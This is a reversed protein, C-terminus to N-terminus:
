SRDWVRWTDMDLEKEATWELFTFPNDFNDFDGTLCGSTFQHCNDLAVNYDRSHGVMDEARKAAKIKGVAETGRCSVYISIANNFGDLRDMFEDPSVVEIDGSGDLHVILDNGIYIGSHEVGWMTCYVVSGQVPTVTDRIVNDIFSDLLGM